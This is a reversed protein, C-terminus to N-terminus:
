GIQISSAIGDIEARDETSITPPYSTHIVLRSGSVELIWILNQQKPHQALVSPEEGGVGDEDFLAFVGERCDDRDYEPVEYEVLQGSFGDVTTEKAGTFGPLDAYASVLNDVTPGPPPDVPRWRCGDAYVNAVDMFIFGFPPGGSGQSWGFNDSKALWGGVMEWGAPMTFRVPLQPFNGGVTVTGQGPGVTATAVSPTPSPTDSAAPTPEDASGASCGTLVLTTLGGLVVRGVARQARGASAGTASPNITM